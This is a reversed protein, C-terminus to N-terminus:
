KKSKAEAALKQLDKLTANEPYKVGIAKLKEKLKSKLEKAENPSIRKEETKPAAPKVEAKASKVGEKSDTVLEHDSLHQSCYTRNFANDPVMWELHSGAGAAKSELTPEINLVSGGNDLMKMLYHWNQGEVQPRPSRIRLFKTDDQFM